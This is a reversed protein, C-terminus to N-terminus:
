NSSFTCTALVTMRPDGMQYVYVTKGGAYTFNAWDWAAFTGDSLTSGFFVAGSTHIEVSIGPAFGAGLVWYQNGNVVPNPTVSCREQGTRQLRFRKGALAPTTALVSIAVAGLVLLAFKRYLRSSHM